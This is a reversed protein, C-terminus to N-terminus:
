PLQKQIEALWQWTLEDTPVAPLPPLTLAPAAQIPRGRFERSLAQFARGAPKLKNDTDILGLDYELPDFQYQPLIDHSCWWTIWSIGGGIAARTADELFVPIKEADMWKSSAGFEQLWVPKSSDGAYARALAAMAPALHTCARDKPGGRLRAGTFEIWCHLPIIKHMDALARASFTFPRFWPIHDIGNVHVAQPSLKSALTLVREMWADGDATNATRWCCNMENGLDFGLFNAHANLVGACAKFYLEVPEVLEPATYFDDVRDFTPRFSWGSLWGTLMTVCVDLRRQAALKMFSDLRELHATSVWKRNPHFYPWILMIRLHDAGMEAIADLDQAIEEEKFDNWCYWWKKSPVYNVGFRIHQFDSSVM